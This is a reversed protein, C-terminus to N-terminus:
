KVQLEKYSFSEELHDFCAPLIMRVAPRCKIFGRDCAPTKKTIAIHFYDLDKEINKIPDIVFHQCHRFSHVLFPLMVIGFRHVDSM